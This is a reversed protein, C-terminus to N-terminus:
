PREVIMSDNPIDLIRKRPADQFQVVTSTGLGTWLLAAGRFSTYGPPTAVDHAQLHAPFLAAYPPKVHILAGEIRVRALRMAGDLLQGSVGGVALPM